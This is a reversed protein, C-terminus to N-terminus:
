AQRLIDQMVDETVENYVPEAAPKLANKKHLEIAKNLYWVAKQLDEVRNKRKHRWLYKFANCECFSIVAETGQTIEMADICEIGATEYHAPHNVNDAM